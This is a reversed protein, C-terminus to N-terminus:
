EPKVDIARVLDSVAKLQERIYGDFEEPTGLNLALGIADLVSTKFGPESMVRRLDANLRQVLERPTGRQYHYGFWTRLPLKIREEEFTPVDPLFELRKSSTVALAKLRGARLHPGATYLSVLSVQSEGTLVAQVNQIQTKYPVPYFPAGRDKRLWEEYMYGTSNVGFHAWTVEGPKSKALEILQQVSGAPVSPHAILASDFFGVHLVPAFDRLPDYPLDRRLVPNWIIVNSATACLTHGDPAARACSEMGIIGDAGIRNEVIVPRGLLRGLPEVLGRSLIDNPIGPAAPVIIRIPRAPWAQASGPAPLAAILVIAILRALTEM